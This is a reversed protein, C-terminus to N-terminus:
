CYRRLGVHNQFLDSFFGLVRENGEGEEDAYDGNEEEEVEFFSKCKKLASTQVDKASTASSSPTPEQSVRPQLFPTWESSDHDPAPPDPGCPWPTDSVSVTSHTQDSFLSQHYSLPDWCCLSEALKERRKREKRKRREERKFATSRTPRLKPDPNPNPPSQPYTLLTIDDGM